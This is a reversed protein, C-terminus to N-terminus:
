RKAILPLTIQRLQVTQVANGNVGDGDLYEVQWMARQDNGLSVLYAGATKFADLPASWQASDSEWRRVELTGDDNGDGAYPAVLVAGDSRSWIAVRGAVTESELVPPAYVPFEMMLVPVSDLSALLRSEPIHRTFIIAGSDEQYTLLVDLLSVLAGESTMQLFPIDRPDHGSSLIGRMALAMSNSNGADASKRDPLAGDPLQMEDLFQRAAEYVASELPYGVDALTRMTLGASDVDAVTAGFAWGWGGSEHQEDVLTQWAAAPVTAGAEHLALVALNHRYLWTDYYRGTEPNYYSEIRAILNLGGFSRPDRGAAMAARASKAAEASRNGSRDVYSPVLAEMAAVVSQGDLTWAPGDPNQGVAAIALIADSTTSAPGFSGPGTISPDCTSNAFCQQTHLWEIAREAALTRYRFPDTRGMLGLMGWWTAAMDPEGAPPMIFAGSSSQMSMLADFASWEDVMWAADLLNEGAALLGLIAAGTSLPDSAASGAEGFGGDARQQGALYAVANQVISSQNSEGALALSWLALGTHYGDGPGAPTEGWSGDIQVAGKLWTVAGTPVAQYGARLALIAMAQAEVAGATASAYRGDPQYTGNLWTLWNRGAFATPDEGLAVGALIMQAIKYSDSDIQGIRPMLYDIAGVGAVQLTAADDGRVLFPQVAQTTFLWDSTAGIGFGGDTHQLSALWALGSETAHVRADTSNGGLPFADGTASADALAPLALLLQLVLVLLLIGSLHRTTWRYRMSNRRM